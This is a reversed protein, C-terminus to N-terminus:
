PAALDKAAPKRWVVLRTQCAADHWYQRDPHLWTLAAYGLVGSTLAGLTPWVGTLGSFYLVALAPLCWLWALLCRCLARAKSVPDGKVTVLRIQWTLM